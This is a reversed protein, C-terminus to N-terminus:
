VVESISGRPVVVRGFQQMEECFRATDTGFYILVSGHNAGSSQQGAPTFDIRHDTFCIPFDWLPQFWKESTNASVLLVAAEIREANYDAILRASWRAQNSGNADDRGYPPNLWVRGHWDQAFGDDEATYYTEANVVRNAKECSAPDLDIGGMVARAAEIYQVPTYWENSESSHMPALVKISKVYNRLDDRSWEKTEAMDLLRDQEADSEVASVERHHSWSLKENRRSFQFRKAVWTYDALSQYSIHTADMAQAYMEGWAGRGEGYALWDGICWQLANKMGVLQSGCAIWEDYSLDADIQLGTPTISYKSVALASESVDATLIKGTELDIRDQVDISM